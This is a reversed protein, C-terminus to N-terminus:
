EEPPRAEGFVLVAPDVDLARAILMLDSIHPDSTGAEFRQYTSRDIGTREVTWQQTRNARMRAARIRDGLARRYALVWDPLPDRPVHRRQPTTDSTTLM